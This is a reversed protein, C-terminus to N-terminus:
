FTRDTLLKLLIKIFLQLFSSIHSFYESNVFYCAAKGRNKIKIMGAKQMMNLHYYSTTGSCGFIHNIDSVTASGNRQIYELIKIRSPDSIIKGFLDLRFNDKSDDNDKYDIGLYVLQYNEISYVNINKSQLVGFSYYIARDKDYITNGYRRVIDNLMSESLTEALDAMKKFHNEYLKSIQSAIFTMNGVLKQTFMIPDFLFSMLCRQVNYPLDSQTILKGISKLNEFEKNVYDTAKDGFYFLYLRKMLMRYDLLCELLQIINNSKNIRDIDELLLEQM